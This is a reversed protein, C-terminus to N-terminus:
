RGGMPPGMPGGMPPGQRGASKSSGDQIGYDSLVRSGKKGFVRLNYTFQVTFYRGIVSNWSNATFGSGTSRSFSTNQNFIDNVGVMLEGLQSKFLKKGLYANCLTYSENYDNTFGINQIYNASATFTFGKWFVTKISGSASHNFYENKGGRAALSNEAQNYAGNWSLTFDINESINSGLVVGADYGMNSAMNREGNVLSPTKSYNVGGSLNLNCKMFNLPLGYNIHTRLSMFGDVNDTTTYQIPTSGVEDIINQPINAGTYISQSIYDQTSQFSFMWMFTRGKELNTFNYHFNVRHSYAPNLNENGNSVYQTDSIDLISNLQNVRPNNTDSMVFLRLSHQKNINLNGMMFYTFDNYSRKVPQTQLAQVQGDLTSYQYNLSVVFTNREKAYNFGPGVRHTTYDSTYRNSLAPDLIGNTYSDDNGYNFTNRQSDQGTYNFDYRLTVQSFEAVPESYNVAAGVGLNSSNSDNSLYRLYPSYGEGDPNAITEQNSFSRSENNNDRYNVRGDVTVMRGKDSLKLRYQLFESFNYGGNDGENGSCIINYLNEGVQLGNTRSFPDYSQLSFGTRSMISQNESIRWDLRANLRHNYNQNDSQGSQELTGLDQLPAEYWRILQSLNRTRTRNFFYSAQLKVKDKEGWSATYNLGIAGVKAVGSQPRTMFQGVGGGMGGGMGGGGGGTVGIIDEFSFHQQNINNLLGIASLRHAGTFYNVNGGFLYKNKNTIDDTEPQYGYGGYLKGFVGQRMSEHTVINLAKYSDGDDRGSFEANDSLKNYVEVSKVAQAPLSNLATSVDEGFFEKGDVFIKQITEGQAEVSGNTITIGPMKKLLGEVDADNAVKFAGANYSVTDGKQSARIAQVEKVVTNIQTASEKLAITGLNKKAASIQIEMKYDEYGLFSVIANYKGYPKAPTTLKGDIDTTYHKKDEANSAPAMELVAGIVPEKTKEDVITLSIQGARQAFTVISTLLLITTFILKKM